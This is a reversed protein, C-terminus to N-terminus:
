EGDSPTQAPHTLDAARPLIVHIQTGVDPCSSAWIRGAHLQVIRKCMALGMGTGPYARSSHLRRFMDFVRDLHAPEIGIGNDSVIIEVIDAREIAEVAVQSPRVPSRFKM